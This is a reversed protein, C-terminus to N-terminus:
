YCLAEKLIEEQRAEMRKKDEGRVDDYGLLHLVGHITLRALERDLSEGFQEAQEEVREASIVVDGLLHPNLSSFEGEGMAFALVDTAQDLHRYKQNLSRIYDDTVLIISVEAQSRNEGRLTERAARRITRLSVKVESQLNRAKIKM